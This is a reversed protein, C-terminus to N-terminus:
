AEKTAEPEDSVKHPMRGMGLGFVWPAAKGLRPGDFVLWLCFQQVRSWFLWMLFRKVLRIIM